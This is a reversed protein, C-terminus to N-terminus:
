AGSIDDIYGFILGYSTINAVATSNTVTIATNRDIKIPFKFDHMISMNQATLTFSPLRFIAIQVGNVYARIASVTSTSTADKITSIAANTIYFDRDGPTTYITSSTQNTAVAEKVIDIKRLLKPNVEMVPVVKDAIQNPVSDKSTQIRAGLILEKSLDSNHITAM